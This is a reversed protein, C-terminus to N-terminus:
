HVSELEEQLRGQFSLMPVVPTTPRNVPQRPPARRDSLQHPASFRRQLQPAVNVLESIRSLLQDVCNIEIGSLSPMSMWFVISRAAPDISLGISGGRLNFISKCARPPRWGQLSTQATGDIQPSTLDVMGANVCTLWVLQVLASPAKILPSSADCEAWRAMTEISRDPQSLTVFEPPAFNDTSAM